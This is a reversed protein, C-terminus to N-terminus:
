HLGALLHHRVNRRLQDSVAPHKTKAEGSHNLNDAETKVSARIEWRLPQRVESEPQNDCVLHCGLAGPQRKPKRSLGTDLTWLGILGLTWLGLLLLLRSLCFSPTLFIRFSKLSQM